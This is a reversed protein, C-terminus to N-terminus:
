FLKTNTDNLSGRKTEIGTTGTMEKDAADSVRQITRVHCQGWVDCMEATVPNCVQPDVAGVEPAIM